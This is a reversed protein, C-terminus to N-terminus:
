TNRKSQAKRYPVQKGRWTLHVLRGGIGLKLDTGLPTTIRVQDATSLHGAVQCQLADLTLNDVNIAQWYRDQLQELPIGYADAFAQTPNIVTFHRVGIRDAEDLLAIWEAAMARRRTIEVGPIHGAHDRVEIIVHIDRLWGLEHGPVLSLYELPVDRGIRQLLPEIVLHLNWFAGHMRIRYALAQIFDISHTSAWISIVQGPMISLSEITKEALTEIDM